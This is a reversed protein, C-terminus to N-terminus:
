SAANLAEEALALAGRERNFGTVRGDNQTKRAFDHVEVDYDGLEGDTSVHAVGDNVVEVLWRASRERPDRM